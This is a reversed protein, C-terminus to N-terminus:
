NSIGHSGEELAAIVPTLSAMLQESKERMRLYGRAEFQVVRTEEEHLRRKLLPLARPDISAGCLDLLEEIVELAELGLYHELLRDMQTEPQKTM